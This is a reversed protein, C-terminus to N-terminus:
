GLHKLPVYHKVRYKTGIVVVVAVIIIKMILEKNM